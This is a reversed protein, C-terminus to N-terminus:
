AETKEGGYFLFIPNNTCDRGKSLRHWSNATMKQLPGSLLYIKCPVIERDCSSLEAKVACFCSYVIHLHVPM